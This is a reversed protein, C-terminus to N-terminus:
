GGSQGSTTRANQFLTRSQSRAKGGCRGESAVDDVCADAEGDGVVVHELARLLRGGGRGGIRVHLRARRVAEEEVVELSAVGAELVHGVEDQVGVLGAEEGADVGLRREHHARLHGVGLRDAELVVAAVDLQGLREAVRLERDGSERDAGVAEPEAVGVVDRPAAAGDEPGGLRRGAHAELERVVREVGEEPALVPM